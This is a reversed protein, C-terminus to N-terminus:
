LAAALGVALSIPLALWRLTGLAELPAAVARGIGLGASAGLVLM